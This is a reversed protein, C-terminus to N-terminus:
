IAEPDYQRWTEIAGSALAINNSGWIGKVSKDTRNRVTLLEDGPHEVAWAIFQLMGHIIGAPVEEVCKYGALYMVMMGANLPSPGACPDCCNTTDITTVRIPINLTSTGPVVPIVTNASMDTGGYLYVKDGAVPYRLRHRYTTKWPKFQNPGQVPETIMRQGTLLQGTYHEAAEIASKRYFELQEDGVAPIDENKTHRRMGDITLMGGWDFKTEQGMDIQPTTDVRPPIVSFMPPPIPPM